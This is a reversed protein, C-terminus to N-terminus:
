DKPDTDHGRPRSCHRALRTQSNVASYSRIAYASIVLIYDGREVRLRLNAADSGAGPETLALGLLVEGRTLRQLWPSVVDLNGYRLLIQGNLSALLNIFSMGLDARAIEEHIVVAALAGLGQGGLKEPM